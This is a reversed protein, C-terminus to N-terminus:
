DNSKLQKIKDLHALILKEFLEENNSLFRQMKTENIEVDFFHGDYYFEHNFINILNLLDFDFTNKEILQIFKDLEEIKPIIKLSNKICNELNGFGDVKTVSPLINYVMDSFNISPKGYFAAELPTAGAISIVLSSNKVLEQGKLSPHILTVNPIDMIEKYESISRWQRSSQAPNEKVYLKYDVPMTRVVNRIIEIQNTYLPSDILLNREMDVSLPFYIYPTDFDIQKKLNNDIFKQRFFKKFTQNFGDFLVISKKRGFHTYNKNISENKSFIYKLIAKFFIIKSKEIKKWYNEIQKDSSLTQIYKRLENENTFRSPTSDLNEIHNMKGINDSILCKNAIRPISLILCKTNRKKLFQYFIEHHNFVPSPSLFFDPQVEDIIKEFLMCCQQIISLITSDSYKFFKFFKYFIRENIGYRWLQINYNKEIESLYKLDPVYDIPHINDHLFWIKKFPILNQNQFFIKSNETVDIIAYLECDHFKKLFHSICFHTLDASLWVLIKDKKM